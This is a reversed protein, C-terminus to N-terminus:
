FNDQLSFFAFHWVTSNLLSRMQTFSFDVRVEYEQGM